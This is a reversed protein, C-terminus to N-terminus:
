HSAVTACGQRYYSLQKCAAARVVPAETAALRQLKEFLYAEPVTSPAVWDVGRAFEDDTTGEGRTFWIDAMAYGLSKRRDPRYQPHAGSRVPMACYNHGDCAMRLVGADARLWFIHRHVGGWAGLPGPSRFAGAFTFYYIPVTGADLNGRLANEVRVKLKRLQMPCDANPQCPVPEGAPSDALIVGVVVIPSDFIREYPQQM